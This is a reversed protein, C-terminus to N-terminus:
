DKDNDNDNQKVQIDKKSTLQQQWRFISYRKRYRGEM